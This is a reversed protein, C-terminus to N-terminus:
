STAGSSSADFDTAVFHRRRGGHGGGAGPQFRAFAGLREALWLGRPRRGLELEALGGHRSDARAPRARSPRCSRSLAGGWLEVQGREVLARLRTLYDTQHLALWQLLPGSTHLALRIGSHRELFQLFPGYADDHAQRFVHDFNGVPQHDHVILVLTVPNM